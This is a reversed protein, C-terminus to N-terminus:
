NCDTEEVIYLPKKESHQKIQYGLSLVVKTLCCIAIALIDIRINTSFFIQKWGYSLGTYVVDFAGLCLFLFCIISPILKLWKSFANFGCIAYDFLKKFSWKTKGACRKQYDIEVCTKKFGVYSSIGKTFREYDPYNSYAEIVDKDYLGYDRAGNKMNKFGTIKAYIKYFAISCIKKVIGQGERGIHKTYVHKYGQKWEFVLSPLFRPDDQLDADMLILADYEKEKAYDFIAKMGAEKGFNRSFSIFHVNSNNQAFGKLLSKTTDTSGDDVFLYDFDYGEFKDLVTDIAVKFQNLATEENYCPVGILIKKM